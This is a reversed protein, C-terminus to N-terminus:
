WDRRESSHQKAVEGSTGRPLLPGAHQQNHAVGPIRLRKREVVPHSFFAQLVCSCACLVERKVLDVVNGAGEECLEARSADKNTYKCNCYPMCIQLDDTINV